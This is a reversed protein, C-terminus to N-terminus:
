WQQPVFSAVLLNGISLSALWVDAQRRNNAEIKQSSINSHHKRAWPLITFALGSASRWRSSTCSLSVLPCGPYKQMLSHQPTTTTPAARHRLVATSQWESITNWNSLIELIDPSLIASLYILIDSVSWLTSKVKDCDWGKLSWFLAASITDQRLKFRQSSRQGFRQYVSKALDCGASDFKVM